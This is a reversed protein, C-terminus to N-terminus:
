SLIEAIESVSSVVYYPSEGQQLFGREILEDMQKLLGDFVGEVNFLIVPKDIFNLKALSLVETIEELTGIGGPLMIFADAKEIMIAKGEASGVFFAQPFM